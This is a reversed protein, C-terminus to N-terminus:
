DKVCCVCVFISLSLAALSASESEAETTSIFFGRIRIFFCFTKKTNKIKILCKNISM